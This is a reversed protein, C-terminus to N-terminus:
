AIDVETLVQVTLSFQANHVQEDTHVKIQPRRDMYGNDHQCSHLILRMVFCV